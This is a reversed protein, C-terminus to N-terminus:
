AQVYTPLTPAVAACRSAPEREAVSEILRKFGEGSIEPQVGKARLRNGGEVAERGTGRTSKGANRSTAKITRADAKVM